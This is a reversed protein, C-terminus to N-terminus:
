LNDLITFCISCFDYNVYATRPDDNWWIGHEVIKYTRGFNSSCMCCKVLSKPKWVFKKMM